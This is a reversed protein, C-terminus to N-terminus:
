APVGQGAEERDGTGARPGEQAAGSDWLRWLRDRAEVLLEPPWPWQELGASGSFGRRRLREILGRLGKEDRALPGTFLPLHADHDGWNEHAHWHVIPVQAGLRDVFGLYDNRTGSHLNAHGTDLCMGVRGEAGPMPALLGFVANVDGPATLPTNELALVAGADRASGATTGSCTRVGERGPRLVPPRRGGQRRRRRRHRPQPPGRHRGRTPDAAWPAHVSFRMSHETAAARLDRRMAVDIEAECWGARGRDRFWEFADFGHRLAFEFPLRAPVDSSTQDGIRIRPIQLLRRYPTRRLRGSPSYSLGIRV